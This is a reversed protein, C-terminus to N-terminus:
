EEDEAGKEHHYHDSCTQRYGQKSPWGCSIHKRCGPEDCTLDPTEHPDSWGLVDFARELASLGGTTIGGDDNPYAFQYVMDELAARLRAEMNLGVKGM